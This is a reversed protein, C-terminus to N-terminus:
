VPATAQAVAANIGWGLAAGSTHGWSRLRSASVQAATVSGRCIASLLSAGAEPLEGREACRLYALGLASSRGAAAPSLAVPAALTLHAAAYGALVDDGAPTLGEGLGALLSVAERVRRVTLAALGPLLVAPPSPLRTHAAAAARRMAPLGASRPSPAGILAAPRERVRELTVGDAGIVLRDRIVRAPAGPHLALQDFGAVAVSLPGFPASPSALLLWDTSGLRVYAGGSLRLEIEGCACDRLARCAGPGAFLGRAVSM